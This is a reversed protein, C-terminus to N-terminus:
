SEPRFGKVCFDKHSKVQKNKTSESLKSSRSVGSRRSILDSMKDGFKSSNLSMLKYKENKRERVQIINDDTKYDISIVLSRAAESLFSRVM